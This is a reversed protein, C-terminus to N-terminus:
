ATHRHGHTEGDTEGDRRAHTTTKNEPGYGRRLPDSIPSISARAAGYDTRFIARAMVCRVTVSANTDPHCRVTVSANENHM